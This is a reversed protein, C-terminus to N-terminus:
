PTLKPRLNVLKICESVRTSLAYVIIIDFPFISELKNQATSTRAYKSIFLGRNKELGELVNQPIGKEQILQM